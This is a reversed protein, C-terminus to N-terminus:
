VEVFSNDIAPDVGPVSHPVSRSLTSRTSSVTMVDDVYSVMLGKLEQVIKERMSPSATMAFGLLAHVTLVAVTSHVHRREPSIQPAKALIVEELRSVVAKHLEAEGCSPGNPGNMAHYVHRYALNEEHFRLLPTVIREILEPTPLSIAKSSMATENIRRLEANYRAALAEVIAEKNPFFQYLSGVSTDARAAIANTTMADVGIEAIVIAAADLIKDVRERGREQRPIRRLLQAPPHPFADSTANIEVQSEGLAGNKTSSGTGKEIRRITGKIVPTM